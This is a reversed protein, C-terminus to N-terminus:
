NGGPDVTGNVDGIRIGIFDQKPRDVDPRNLLIHEPFPASFPMTPDPFVHDAPVFRWATNGPVSDLIGLIVKRLQVVDFTTVNGSHNADAAIIKYPSDLPAIGLIHKTILALDLTTLGNLWNEDYNPRLRCTDKGPVDSFWFTGLSDSPMTQDIQGGSLRVSVKPIPLGLPTRVAGGVAIRLPPSCHGATDFVLVRSFCAAVNGALDQVTLTVQQEGIQGCSFVNPIVSFRLSDSPTCADNSGNDLRQATLTATSDKRLYLLVDNRCRATPASIDRVVIRQTAATTNGCADSATYRVIHTGVPYLGSANGGPANAFASNHVIGGITGCDTATAPDLNAEALCGPRDALLTVDAPVTLVPGTQDRVALVQTGEWYGPSGPGIYICFDHVKWTRVIRFCAPAPAQPFVEDSYVISLVSCSQGTVNPRGTVVPLLAAPGDCANVTVNAPFTVSLTNLAQVTITQVCSRTNGSSDAALWTRAVSGIQCADLTTQDTHVLSRLGCNDSATARGCRNLDKYDEQCHLTVHAPCQLTPRLLDRVTIQIECYNDLGVEDLARLTLTLNKGADACDLMVEPEFLVGDRSLGLTVAGCNDTSGDDLTAAPLLIGGGSSLTIQLNTKCAVHPPTGDVVTVRLTKTTRNGCADTATYTAVHTGIPVNAFPGLGSGFAWSEAISVTSCSDSAMAEPLTVSAACVSATTAVTINAPMQLLPPTKDEVKIIQLYTNVDSSCIDAIRWTRFITYGATGCTNVRQDEFTVALACTNGPELAVGDLTPRGTLALNTPNQGCALAPRVNGDLHGPLGVELLNPRRVWIRETCTSRNGYADTVIWNRDLRRMVKIGNQTATCALNVAFDQFSVICNNAPTCNDEWHPAGIATTDTGKACVVFREQCELIPPLFDRVQITTLCFNGSPVHTLKATVNKGVEACTLPNSVQRPLPAFLSVLLDDPCRAATTPAIM